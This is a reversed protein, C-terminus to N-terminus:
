PFQPHNHFRSITKRYSYAYVATTPNDSEPIIHGGNKIMDPFLSADPQHARTLPLKRDGGNPMSASKVLGLQNGNSLDTILIDSFLDMFPGM